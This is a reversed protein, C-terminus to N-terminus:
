VYAVLRGFEPRQQRSELKARPSSVIPTVIAKRLAPVKGATALAGQGRM